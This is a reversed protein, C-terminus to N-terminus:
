FHCFVLLSPHAAPERIQRSLRPLFPSSYLPLLFLLMTRPFCHPILSRLPRYSVWGPFSLSVLIDIYFLTLPICLHLSSGSQSFQQFNTCFHFSPPLFSDFVWSFVLLPLLLLLLFSVVLLLLFLIQFPPRPPFSDHPPSSSSVSYDSPSLALWASVFIESTKRLPFSSLSYWAFALFLSPCAISISTRPM